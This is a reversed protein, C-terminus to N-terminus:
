RSLGNRPRSRRLSTQVGRAIAAAAEDDCVWSPPDPVVHSWVATLFEGTLEGNRADALVTERRASSLLGLVSMPDAPIDVVDVFRSDWFEGPGNPTADWYGVSVYRPTGPRFRVATDWLSRCTPPGWVIREATVHDQLGDFRLLPDQAADGRAPRTVAHAADQRGNSRLVGSWAALSADAAAAAAAVDPMLLQDSDVPGPVSIVTWVNPVAPEGCRGCEFDWMGGFPSCIEDAAPGESGACCPEPLMWAGVVVALAMDLANGSGVRCVEATGATLQQSVQWAWQGVAARGAVRDVAELPVTAAAGSDSFVAAEAVVSM